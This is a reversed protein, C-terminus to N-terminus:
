LMAGDPCSIGCADKGLNDPHTNTVLVPGEQPLIFVNNTIIDALKWCGVLRLSTTHFQCPTMFWMIMFLCYKINM